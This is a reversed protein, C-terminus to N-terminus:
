TSPVGPAEREKLRRFSWAARASATFLATFAVLIVFNTLVNLGWKGRTIAFLQEILYLVLGGVAAFRSMRRIGFGIFVFLVADMMAGRAASGFLVFFTTMAAILLSLYMGNRAATKAAVTDSIDPWLLDRWRSSTKPTSPSINLQQM